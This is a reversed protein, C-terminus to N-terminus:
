VDTEATPRGETERISLVMTPVAALNKVLSAGGLHHRQGVETYCLFYADAIPAICLEIALSVFHINCQNM